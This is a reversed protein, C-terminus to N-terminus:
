STVGSYTSSYRHLSVAHSVFCYDLSLSTIAKNLTVIICSLTAFASRGPAHACRGLDKTPTM